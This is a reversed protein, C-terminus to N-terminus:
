EDIERFQNSSFFIANCFNRPLTKDTRRRSSIIIMSFLRSKVFFIGVEVELNNVDVEFFLNIERLFTLRFFVYNSLVWNNNAEVIERLIFFM